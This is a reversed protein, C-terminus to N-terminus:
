RRLKKLLLAEVEADSLDAIEAARAAKTEDAAAPEAPAPSTQGMGLATQELYLAIADITPYDFVLTAPLAEHMDLGGSLLTRLELAMLSDLGMDLLRQYRDLPQNADLRLVRAVRQRV